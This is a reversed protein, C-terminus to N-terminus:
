SLMKGPNMIGAPDLAQKVAAMALLASGHEERLLDQKGLGIGHEGTCTGGCAIAHRAISKALQRANGAEQENDDAYLILGHFNGDGVHGVIPCQLDLEAASAVAHEICDALRSIPVCADTAFSAKGPALGHAAHYANHRATWLANREETSTAWSFHGGGHSDFVEEVGVLQDAVAAESGHFEVFLTPRADFQELKSWNICADMQVADLLEIRAVPIGLQIILIVADVADSLNQFQVVGSAIHEPIGHLRLQLETIVGLTGESGVYVHTLDYGASSKRARGGTKIIEGAPTVVTLGLTVERMTGYRVANTGSARTAAMGGLSANHGPDLPFFLGDHRIHANLAERTVGAQVRCDLDQANVELVADMGSVDLSIGGHVANLQAELSSGSGFPIVPTKTEFCIRLVAAVEENSAVFVVADPPASGWHGEGHGHADRIAPSLSLREGFLTQLRAIAEGSGTPFGDSM